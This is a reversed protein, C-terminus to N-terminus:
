YKLAYGKAKIVAQCKNKMSNALKLCTESSIKNWEAQVVTKLEQKSKVGAKHVRRKLIAWLHEIPNLDPSQAPTQLLKPVNWILWNM